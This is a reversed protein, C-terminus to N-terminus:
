GRVFQKVVFSAAMFVILGALTFLAIETLFM